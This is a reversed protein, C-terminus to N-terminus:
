KNKITRNVFELFSIGQWSTQSPLEDQVWGDLRQIGQFCDNRPRKAVKCFWKSFICLRKALNRPTQFPLSLAKCGQASTESSQSLTQCGQLVMKCLLDPVSVPVSAKRLWVFGKRLRAFDNQLSAFRSRLTAWLNRLTLLGNRFMLFPSQCTMGLSQLTVFRGAKHEGRRIISVCRYYGFTQTQTPKM